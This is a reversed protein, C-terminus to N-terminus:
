EALEPFGRHPIDGVQPPHKISSVCYTSRSPCLWPRLASGRPRLSTLPLCTVSGICVPRARTHSTHSTTPISMYLSPEIDVYEHESATILSARSWTAEVLRLLGSTQWRCKLREAGHPKACDVAVLVPTELGACSKPRLMQQDSPLHLGQTGHLRM